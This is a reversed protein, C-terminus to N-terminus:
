RVHEVESELNIQFKELVSSKIANELESVEHPSAEGNLNVIVLPQKEYVGVNGSKYGKWGCKEILWAAPIKVCENDEQFHPVEGYGNKNAVFKVFEFKDASVFPNKFFSGANGLESPEPLKSKRIDIIVNRVDSCKLNENEFIHSDFRKEIASKVNGYGLEPSYSKKLSFVVATVIYRGKGESKFYSQRYAYRCEPNSFIKKTNTHIDICEVYKVIDKIERGYAGINQVAAAGVDGPIYSLNEPGWYNHDACWLCFDDWCIGAGVRVTVEDGKGESKYFKINSHLVTGNFDGEFLLNSGGGINFLPMPLSGLLREDSLIEQLEEVRNYEIFCAAKVKMKFTNHGSLDFNYQIDM